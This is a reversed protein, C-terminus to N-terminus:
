ILALNPFETLEVMDAQIKNNLFALQHAVQVMKQCHPCTLTVMIQLHVSDAITKVMIELGPDLGTRETSVMVIDQLLSKFEYGVTLGYFLISFDRKGVVATAPIKDVKYNMVEDGNLVFDYVELTLKTSMASLERLLEEQELCPSCANKQTFFVIKVPNVLSALVPQIQAKVREDIYRSMIVM